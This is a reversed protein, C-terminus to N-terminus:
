LWNILNIGTKDEEERQDAAEGLIVEVPVPAAEVKRVLLLAAITPRVQFIQGQRHNM